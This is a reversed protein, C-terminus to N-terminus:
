ENSSDKKDFQFMQKLRDIVEDKKEILIEGGKSSYNKIAPRALESLLKKVNERKSKLEFYQKFCYMLYDRNKIIQDMYKKKTSYLIEFLVDVADKREEPTMNELVSMTSMEVTESFFDTGDSYVFHNDEILWSHTWHQMAYVEDSKVVTVKDENIMMRGVSTQEPVFKIIRDKIAKYSDLDFFAAIFGPGDFNYVGSIRDQLDKRAMVSAYEALNAGKSHGVVYINTSHIYELVNNIYKLARAQGPIPFQYTMNMDEHWGLVTGDTGRFAVVAIDRNIIFSTASFQMPHEEDIENVHFKVICSKYRESSLVVNLLKEDRDGILNFLETAKFLNKHALIEPFSLGDEFVSFDCYSLQAFVLADVENFPMKKFTKNSNEIVYELLHM